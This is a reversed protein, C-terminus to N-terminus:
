RSGTEKISSLCMSFVKVEGGMSKIKACKRCEVEMPRIKILLAVHGLPGSFIRDALGWFYVSFIRFYVSIYPFYVSIYPRRTVCKCRLLM